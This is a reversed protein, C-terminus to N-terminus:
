TEYRADRDDAVANRRPHFDGLRPRRAPLGSRVLHPPNRGHPPRGPAQGRRSDHQAHGEEARRRPLVQSDAPSEGGTGGRHLALRIRSGARRVHRQARTEDHREHCHRLGQRLTRPHYDPATRRRQSRPLLHTECGQGTGQGTRNPRRLTEQDRRPRVQHSRADSGGFGGEDRGRGDSHQRDYRRGHHGPRMRGDGLIRPQHRVPREQTRRASGFDPRRVSHGVRGARGIRGTRGACRTSYGQGGFDPEGHRLSRRPLGLPVAPAPCPRDSTGHAGGRRQGQRRTEHLRGSLPRM